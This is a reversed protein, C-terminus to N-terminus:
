HEQENVTWKAMWGENQISIIRECRAVFQDDDSATRDTAIVRRTLYRELEDATRSYELWQYEYRSAGAHAILATSVTTAVGVWASTASVAFVAAVAALVAAVISMLLELRRVVTLRRHMQQAKPRYYGTVQDAVRVNVYSDVDHIQPAPRLRPELGILHRTLDAVDDILRDVRDLLLQDAHPGRFPAVGALYTYLDAKMAESVARLRTWDQVAGRGASRYVVPGLAVVLTAVFALGKGAASSIGAVQTAATGTVAGTISLALAWTRSRAIRAKLRNAAQSWM